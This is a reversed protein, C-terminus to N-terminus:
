SRENQALLVRAKAQLIAIFNSTAIYAEYESREKPTLQGENCKEALVEVRAQTQSDARLRVLRRAVQPTLCRSVQELLGSVVTGNQSSKITKM